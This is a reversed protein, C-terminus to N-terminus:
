LTKSPSQPRAALRLSSLSPICDTPNSSSPSLPLQSAGQLSANLQNVRSAVSLDVTKDGFDVVLGGLVAENVKNEIILTKGAGALASGKLTTELRRMIDKELPEASTITVKVEGRHAGMIEAFDALVKESEYLRGNDALVEFFNKTLESAGKPSAKKLLADISATKDKASLVPNTFFDSILPENAIATRVGALDTEVHKLAEASCM